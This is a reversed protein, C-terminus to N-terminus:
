YQNTRYFAKVHDTERYRPKRKEAEDEKAPALSGISGSVEFATAAPAVITTGTALGIASLISRRAQAVHEAVKSM